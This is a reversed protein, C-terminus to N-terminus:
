GQDLSYESGSDLSEFSKSQIQRDGLLYSEIEAVVRFLIEVEDM